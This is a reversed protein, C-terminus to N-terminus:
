QTGGEAQAVRRETLRCEADFAVAAVGRHPQARTEKLQVGVLPGLDELRRVFKVVDGQSLGFGKLHLVYTEVRRPAAASKAGPAADDKPRKQATAAEADVARLEVAQLIIEQGRQEALATLLVSWDPHVGVTESAELRRAHEQVQTRTTELSAEAATLRETLRGGDVSLRSHEEGGVVHLSLCAVTLGASLAVGGIIWRRVRRRVNAADRLRAPILNIAIM